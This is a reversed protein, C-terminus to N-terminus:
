SFLLIEFSVISVSSLKKFWHNEVVKLSNENIFEFCINKIHPLNFKNSLNFAAVFTKSNIETCIFKTIDEQLNELAYFNALCFIECLDEVQFKSFENFCM